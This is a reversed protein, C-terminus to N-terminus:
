TEPNECQGRKKKKRYEKEKIAKYKKRHEKFCNECFKIGNAGEIRTGCGECQKTGNLNRSMTKILADGFTEWLTTKFKSNKESYLYKVLVDSIYTGDGNINLLEERFKQYVFMKVNSNQTQEYQKLLVDKKRDFKVYENVIEDDVSRSKVTMLTKYDFEGAIEEFKIRKNPILRHLRNVTCANAKEVRKKDKDKAYVFFHPVKRKVYKSIRDNIHDPRTPMFLTKAFDITFNNEMCLWKIVDLDVDASNWIKTINNSIEGINAKYAMILSDYINKSNIEQAEAKSMEYYLPVIGAMNREAVKVITEDQIVLAKDGDNM